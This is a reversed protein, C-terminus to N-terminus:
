PYENAVAKGYYYIISLLIREMSIGEINALM